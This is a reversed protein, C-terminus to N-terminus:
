NIQFAFRQKREQKSVTDRVSIELAYDGAPLKDGLTVAGSIRPLSATATDASDFKTPTGEIIVKGNQVIDAVTELHVNKSSDLKANYVEFGYRLVSAPRFQRLVTDYLLTSKLQASDTGGGVKGQKILQWTNMSVNEVAMSSLTLQQRTLDPIELVQTATGLKGTGADRLAVRYQYVGAKKVPVILVYVFGNNIIADLTPGKAKITYSTQVFDNPVGNIGFTVAAVDFTAKKWGDPTDDFKLDKSDIHLFSRIYAGDRPDNAYLANINLSIDSATFPSMLSAAIQKDASVAATQDTGGDNSFFGSRYSVKLGPQKVRVEFKNFKRKEVDFTDSDPIYGLLYFGSQEELARQIGGNLDDSNLLAKGGTQNALYAMGDQKDEFERKRIALKEERHGDIIEYTNDSANIMMSAMGRTDFTYVNVSSRNAVDTVDQMFGLITGARSKNNMGGKIDIGDSFLFMAKRGPLAKMGSIIYKLTGLATQSYISQAMAASNKSAEKGAQQVEDVTNHPHLLTYQKSNGSAVQDSEETFRASIDTDTQSVSSLADLSSLPNWKIAAAAARLVRKDSTFQQLAGVGGGVRIIAVLDNPLMQEDIFKNIARRTYYVSAFSLNLDDIVIAITRRVDGRRLPTTPASNSVSVNGNGGGITAGSSTKSIFGFNTIAQKQGNEYLEFDEPKLTTVVKGDKDTVTVDIQILDTSIKVVQDDANPTPAPTPQQAFAAVIASMVVCAFVFAKKM